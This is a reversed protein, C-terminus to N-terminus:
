RYLGRREGGCGRPNPLAYQRCPRDPPNRLRERRCRQRLSRGEPEHEADNRPLLARSSRRRQRLSEATTHHVALGSTLLTARLARARAFAPQLVEASTLKARLFDSRPVLGFSRPPRQHRTDAPVLGRANGLGAVVSGLQLAGSGRGAMTYFVNRSRQEGHPKRPAEKYRGACGESRSLAENTGLGGKSARRDGHFTTFEHAHAGGGSYLLVHHCRLSAPVTQPEAFADIEAKPTRRRSVINEPPMGEALLRRARREDLCPSKSLGSM